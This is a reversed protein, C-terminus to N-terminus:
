MNFVRTFVWGSVFVGMWGCGGVWMYNGHFTDNPEELNAHDEQYSQLRSEDLNGSACCTPSRAGRDPSAARRAEYRAEFTGPKLHKADFTGSAQEGLQGLVDREGVHTTSKRLQASDKSTRVPTSKRQTNDLSLAQSDPRAHRVDELQSEIFNPLDTIEGLIDTM